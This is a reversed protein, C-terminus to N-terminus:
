YVKPSLKKPSTTESYKIDTINKWELKNTMFNLLTKITKSDVKVESIMRSTKNGNTDLIDEVVKVGFFEKGDGTNHYIIERVLPPHTLPESSGNEGTPVFFVDTIEKPGSGSGKATTFLMNFSYLPCKGEQVFKITHAKFCRWGYPYDSQQAEQVEPAMIYTPVEAEPESVDNLVEIKPANGIEAFREPVKANMMEPTLALLVVVPMKGLDTTSKRQSPKFEEGENDNDRHSGFNVATNYRFSVPSIPAIAM